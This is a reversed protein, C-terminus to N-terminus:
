ISSCGLAKTYAYSIRSKLAVTTKANDSVFFGKPMPNGDVGMPPTRPDYRGRVDVSVNVIRNIPALRPETASIADDSPGYTKSAQEERECNAPDTVAPLDRNVMETYSFVPAYHQALCATQTAECNLRTTAGAASGPAYNAYEPLPIMRDNSVETGMCQTGGGSAATILSTQWGYVGGAASGSQVRRVLWGKDVEWTVCQSPVETATASPENKVHARFVLRYPSAAVIDRADLPGPKTDTLADLLEEANLATRGPSITRGLDSRLQAMTTRLQAELKRQQLSQRHGDFSDVLTTVSLACILGLLTMAVLLEILTVGAQRDRSLM